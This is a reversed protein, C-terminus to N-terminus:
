AWTIVNLHKEKSVFTNLYFRVQDALQNQDDEEDFEDEVVLELAPESRCFLINSNFPRGYIVDRVCMQSNKQRQVITMLDKAGFRNTLFYKGM